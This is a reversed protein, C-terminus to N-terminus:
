AALAARRQKSAEKNAEPVLPKGTTPNSITLWTEATAAALTGDHPLAYFEGSDPDKVLLGAEPIIYPLPYFKSNGGILKVQCQPCLSDGQEAQPAKGVYRGACGMHEVLGLAHDTARVFLGKESTALDSEARLRDFEAQQARQKALRETEANVRDDVAREETTREPAGAGDNALREDIKEATAEGINPVENFWNETEMTKRLQAYTTIGAAELAAKGPFDDPLKGKLDSM